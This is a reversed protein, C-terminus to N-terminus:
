FKSELNLNTVNSHLHFLNTLRECSISKVNEHHKLFHLKISYFIEKGLEPFTREKGSCNLGGKAEFRSM